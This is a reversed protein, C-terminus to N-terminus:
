RSYAFGFNQGAVMCSGVLRAADASVRGTCNMPAPIANSTITWAVDQGAIRGGGLAVVTGNVTQIAVQLDLTDGSQGIQLEEGDDARWTGAINLIQAAPAPAPAPGPLIPQPQPQPTPADRGSLSIIAVLVAGAATIIAAIIQPSCGGRAEGKDAM